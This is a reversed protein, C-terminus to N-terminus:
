TCVGSSTPETAEQCWNAKGLNTGNRIITNIKMELLLHPLTHNGETFGLTDKLPDHVGTQGLCFLVPCGGMVPWLSGAGV